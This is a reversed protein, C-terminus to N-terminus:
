CYHLLSSNIINACKVAVSAAVPTNKRATGCYLTEAHSADCLAEEQFTSIEMVAVEFDGKALNIVAVQAASTCYTLNFTSFFFHM